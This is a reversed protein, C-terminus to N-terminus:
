ILSPLHSSCLCTHSLPVALHDSPILHRLHTDSPLTSDTLTSHTLHSPLASAILPLSTSPSYFCTYILFSLLPHLYTPLNLLYTLTTSSPTLCPSFTHPSFPHLPTIYILTYSRLDHTYLVRHQYEPKTIPPPLSGYLGKRPLLSSVLYLFSTLFFYHDDM